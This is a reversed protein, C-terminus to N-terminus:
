LKEGLTIPGQMPPVNEPLTYPKESAGEAIVSHSDPDLLWYRWDAGSFDGHMVVLWVSAWQQYPSAPSNEGEISKLYHRFQLEWWAKAKADGAGRALDSMSALLWDRPKDPERATGSSPTPTPTPTLDAAEAVTLTKTTVTGDPAETEITVTGDPHTTTTVINGDADAEQILTSGDALKAESKGGGARFVGIQTVGDSEYVPLTFGRLNHKNDAAVEEPTSPRAGGGLDKWYYYGVKGNTAMVSVLDPPEMLGLRLEGYTQGAANTPYASEASLPPEPWHSPSDSSFAGALAAGGVLAAVAVSAAAAIVVLRRRRRPQPAKEALVEFQGRLEAAFRTEALQREKDEADM